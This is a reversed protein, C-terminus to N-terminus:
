LLHAIMRKVDAEAEAWDAIRHPARAAARKAEIAAVLRAARGRLGEWVEASYNGDRYALMAGARDRADAPNKIQM